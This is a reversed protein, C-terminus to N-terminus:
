AQIDAGTDHNQNLRHVEVAIHGNVLFDPPFNGDPEHVINTYGQEALFEAVLRETPDM